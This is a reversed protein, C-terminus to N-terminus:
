DFSEPDIKEDLIIGESKMKGIRRYVTAKSGIDKDIKIMEEVSKGENHLELIKFDIQDMIMNYKTWTGEKDCLLMFPKTRTGGFNRFKDFHVSCQVGDHDAFKSKEPLKKLIIHTDVLRQSLNSGSATGTTKGTHHFFVTIVGKTKLLMLWMMLSSWDTSKNEDISTLATINDLFLVPYHGTKDKIKNLMREILKRNRKAKEEENTIAIPEFEYKFGHMELDDLTLFFMDAFNVFEKREIKNAVLSNVRDRIDSAPLEGEVYLCSRKGNSTYWQEDDFEWGQSLDIALKLGLHTKGSGYDGSIQTVTKERLIPDLLFKPEPYKTNLMKDFDIIPYDKIVEPEEQFEDKNKLLDYAPISKLKLFKSLEKIGYVENNPNKLQERQYSIKNVRNKIENDGTNICLQEVFKELLQNPYENPDLRALCGALRLHAYDRQKSASNPFNKEVETFFCILNLRKTLKNIEVTTPPVDNIVVRDDGEFITSTSSLSEVLLGSDKSANKPYEFKCAGEGNIKYTKHTPVIRGGVIKGDTFTAPLLPSYGHAVFSKDDFDITFTKSQKHFFALRKSKLLEQDTWDVSHTGNKTKPRKTNDEVPTLVFGYSEYRRLDDISRKM